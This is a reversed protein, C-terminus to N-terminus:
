LDGLPDEVSQCVSERCSTRGIEWLPFRAAGITQKEIDLPLCFDPKHLVEICNIFGKPRKVRRNGGARDLNGSIALLAHFARFTQVGASFADIGHGSVFTAPGAAYLRAAQVIDDASLDSSCVDSSWDSIRMDYATNQKFFFSMIHSM